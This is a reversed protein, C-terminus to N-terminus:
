FFSEWNSKTSFLTNRNDTKKLVFVSLIFIDTNKETVFIQKFHISVSFYLFSVIIRGLKSVQSDEIAREPDSRLLQQYFTSSISGPPSVSAKYLAGTQVIVLM